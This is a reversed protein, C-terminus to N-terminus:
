RQTTKKIRKTKENKTRNTIHRKYTISGGGSIANIKKVFSSNQLKKNFVDVNEILKLVYKHNEYIYSIKQKNSGESLTKNLIYIDYLNDYSLDTVIVETTLESSRVTTSYVTKTDYEYEYYKNNEYLIINEPDPVKRKNLNSPTYTAATAATAASAAPAATPYALNSLDKIFDIITNMYERTAYTPSYVPTVPPTVPSTVTSSHISSYATAIISSSKAASGLPSSEKTAYVIGSTTAATSANSASTIIANVNIYANYYAKFDDEKTKAIVDNLSAEVIKKLENNGSNLVPILDNRDDIYTNIIEFYTHEKEAKYYFSEEKGYKKWWSKNKVNFVDAEANYEVYYIPEYGYIYKDHVKIYNIFPFNRDNFTPMKCEIDYIDKQVYLIKNQPISGKYWSRINMFMRSKEIVNESIDGIYLSLSNKDTIKYTFAVSNGTTNPKNIILAGEEQNKTNKQISEFTYKNDDNENNIKSKIKTSNYTDIYLNQTENDVFELYKNPIIYAKIKQIANLAIKNMTGSQSLQNPLTFASPVLVNIPRYDPNDHIEKVDQGEITRYYIQRDPHGEDILFLEIEFKDINIPTSPDFKIISKNSYSVLNVADTLSKLNNPNPTFTIESYKSDVINYNNDYKIYVSIIPLPNTSM